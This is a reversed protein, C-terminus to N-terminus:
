NPLFFRASTKLQTTTTLSLTDKKDLFIVWIKPDLIDAPSCSKLQSASQHLSARSFSFVRDNCNFSQKNWTLLDDSIVLALTLRRLWLPSAGRCRAQARLWCSRTTCIRAMGPTSGLAPSLAPHVGNLSAHLWPWMSQTLSSKFSGSLDFLSCRQHQKVPQYSINVNM